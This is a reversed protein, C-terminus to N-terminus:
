PGRPSSSTFWWESAVLHEMGDARVRRPRCSTVEELPLRYGFEPDKLGADFIANALQAEGTRHRDGPALWGYYRQRALKLVRCAVAVPASPPCQM